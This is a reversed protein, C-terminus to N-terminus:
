FPESKTDPTFKESAQEAGKVAELVEAELERTLTVHNYYKGDNGKRSPMSIFDYAGNASQGTKRNCGWVRVGHIDINYFKGANTNKIEVTIM